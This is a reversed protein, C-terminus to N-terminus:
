ASVATSVTARASASRSTRSIVCHISPFHPRDDSGRRQQGGQGVTNGGLVRSSDGLGLGNEGREDFGVADGAGLARHPFHHLSEQRRPHCGGGVGGAVQPHPH